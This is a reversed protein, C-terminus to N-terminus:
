LFHTSSTHMCPRAFLTRLSKKKKKLNNQAMEMLQGKFLQATGEYIAGYLIYISLVTIEDVLILAGRQKIKVFFFFISNESRKFFHDM